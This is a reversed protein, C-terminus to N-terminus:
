AKGKIFWHIREGCNGDTAANIKSFAKIQRDKDFPNGTLNGDLMDKLSNFANENLCYQLWQSEEMFGPEKEKIEEYDFEIEVEKYENTNIDVDYFKREPAYWIRQVAKGQRPYTIYFGGMGEAAFYGNRGRNAFPIPPEWREMKGTERDLTLYMNGWYPSIVIKERDGERSFVINRYPKEECERGDPWKICRFDQPIDNYERVYGTRPNWCIITMGNMPLLWLEEGDTVISQTGMNCESHSCMGRAKLTDMDVFIFEHDVPSAFVLENGYIGIGGIRWEGSVNRM